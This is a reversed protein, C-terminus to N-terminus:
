GVNRGRQSSRGGAGGGGAGGWKPSISWNATFRIGERSDSGEGGVGVGM